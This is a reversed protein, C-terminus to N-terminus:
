TFLLVKVSKCFKIIYSAYEPHTSLATRSADLTVLQNLNKLPDLLNLNCPIPNLGIQLHLLNKCASSIMDVESLQNSTLNLIRLSPFSTNTMWDLNTIANEQLELKVLFARWEISQVLLSDSLSQSSLYNDGLNLLIGNRQQASTLDLACPFPPLLDLNSLCRGNYDIYIISAGAVYLVNFCKILFINDQV